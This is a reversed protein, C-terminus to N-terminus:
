YLILNDGLSFIYNNWVQNIWDIMVEAICWENENFTYFVKKNKVFENTDLVKKLLTSDENGKYILYPSLKSGDALICLLASIRLKEKNQTKVIISKKGKHDIINSSPMNFLFPVEDM